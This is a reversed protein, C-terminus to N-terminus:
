SAHRTFGSELLLEGLANIDETDNYVHPSVRIVDGRVSVYVNGERLRAALAALDVGDPVCLGILHAARGAENPGALRLGRLLQGTLERCYAQIAPVGWELLQELASIFMPMLTFNAAEGMDYRAAGPRYPAAQDVLRTFDESGEKGLWHEELPVGDDFRPGFYAAGISYPGTLWKYAACILADPQVRQFDFPMAGIAQTGDVVLAAGVERARDSIEPLEFLTGDTWHVPGLSVAATDADIAELITDNWSRM